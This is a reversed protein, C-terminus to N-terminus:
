AHEHVVGVAVAALVLSVPHFLSAINTFAILAAIAGFFAIWFILNCATMDVSGNALHGLAVRVNM